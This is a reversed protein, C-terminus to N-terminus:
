AGPVATARELFEPIRTLDVNGGSLIIVVRDGPIVPIHGFLLAALAAAGAPEVVQKLREMAFRLGGLIEEDPLTVLGDLLSSALPLTWSGAYPAGLGDAVTVPTVPVVGGADVAQKVASSGDPEVGYLRIEPKLARLAVSAGCLMGGGGLGGIVLDAEPIQELIEIGMSGHGAIVFPDDFPHADILGREAVLKNKLEGATGMHGDVLHVIAGYAKCAAIKAPVAKAPMVVEVPIGYARGAWAYAAAANGASFTIIGRRKVDDIGFFEVLRAVRNLMGRVKYSGSRQLHESKFRVRGDGLAPGGSRRLADAAGVSSLIPTIHLKGATRQVADKVAKLDMNFPEGTLPDTTPLPPYAPRQERSPLDPMPSRYYM